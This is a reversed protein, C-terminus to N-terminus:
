WSSLEDQIAILQRFNLENQQIVELVKITNGRIYDPNQGGKKIQKYNIEIYFKFNNLTEKNLKVWDLYEIMKQKHIAENNLNSNIENVIKDHEELLSNAENLKSNYENVFVQNAGCGSILILSFILGIILYKIKGGNTNKIEKLKM